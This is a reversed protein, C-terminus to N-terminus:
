GGNMDSRYMIHFQCAMGETTQIHTPTMGIRQLIAISAMNRVDAFGLFHDHETERFLWDRLAFAAELAYGKGWQERFLAYGLEPEGTLPYLSYGARGVLANDSKRILRLKGMKHQRFEELWVALRTEAQKQTWPKGSMTLYRSVEPDSHLAILDDIQDASWSYFALRETEIFPQDDM